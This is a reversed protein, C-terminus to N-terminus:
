GRGGSHQLRCCPLDARLSEEAVEILRDGHAYGFPEALILGPAAAQARETLREVAADFLRKM